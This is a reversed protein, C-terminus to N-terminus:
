VKYLTPVECLPWFMLTCVVCMRSQGFCFRSQIHPSSLPADRQCIEMLERTHNYSGRRRWSSHSLGHKHCTMLDLSYHILVHWHCSRSLNTKRQKKEEWIIASQHPEARSPAPFLFLCFHPRWLQLHTSIWSTAILSIQEKKFCYDSM